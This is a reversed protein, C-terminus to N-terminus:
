EAPAAETAAEPEAVPAPTPTAKETIAKYKGTLPGQSAVKSAEEHSVGAAELARVRSHFRADHGPLFNGGKTQGGCGCVCNKPEKVVKEAAVKKPKDPKALKAVNYELRKQEREALEAEHKIQWESKIKPKDPDFWGEQVEAFRYFRGNGGHESHPCYLLGKARYIDQDYLVGHGEPCLFGYERHAM